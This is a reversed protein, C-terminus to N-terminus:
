WGGGGGSSTSSSSSPAAALKVSSGATTLGYWWGGFAHVGEGASQGAKHDAAYLYVPWHNYTLQTKGNSDKTTGLLSAKVGAGAVPKGSVTLPPWVASCSGSCHSGNQADKTFMYLTKGSASVLVTGLKGVKATKVTAAKSSSTTAAGATSTSAGSGCGAAVVGIAAVGVVAAWMRRGSLQM